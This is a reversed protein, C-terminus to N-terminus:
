KREYAGMDNSTGVPRPSWTIDYSVGISTGRDIAPSGSQLRYDNSGTNTFLANGVISGTGRKYTSQYTALSLYKWTSRSVYIKTTSKPDFLNNTDKSISSFDIVSVEANGSKSIINGVLEIQPTYKVAADLIIGYTAQNHITNGYIKVGGAHRIYIGGGFGGNYILNNRIMVNSINGECNNDGNTDGYQNTEGGVGCKKTGPSVITPGYLIVSVSQRNNDHMVNNSITTSFNNELEVAGAYCNYLTNNQVLHRYQVSGFGDLNICRGTSSTINYITNGDFISDHTRNMSWIGRNTFGYIINNKYVNHHSAGYQEHVANGNDGNNSTGVVQ